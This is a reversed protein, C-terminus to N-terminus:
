NFYFVSSDCGRIDLFNGGCYIIRKVIDGTLEDEFSKDSPSYEADVDDPIALAQQIEAIRLPRCAFLVLQFMRVGVNIDPQDRNDELERLMVEYFEDLETPLCRLFAYIDQDRFGTARYKLLEMGILRVWIFVGQAHRMIYDKTDKHSTTSLNLEELFSEAFKSIDPM